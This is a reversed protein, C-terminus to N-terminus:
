LGPQLRTYVHQLHSSAPRRTCRSSATRSTRSGTAPMPCQDGHRYVRIFYQRIHVPLIIHPLLLSAIPPRLFAICATSIRDSATSIRYIKNLSHFRQAMLDSKNKHREQPYGGPEHQDISEQVPPQHDPLM